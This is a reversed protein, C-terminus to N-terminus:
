QPLDKRTLCGVQRAKLLDSDEKSKSRFAKLQLVGPKSTNYFNVVKSLFCEAPPIQQDSQKRNLNEYEAPEYKELCKEDCVLREKEDLLQFDVGQGNFIHLDREEVQDTINILKTFGRTVNVLVQCEVAVQSLRNLQLFHESDVYFASAFGKASYATIPCYRETCKFGTMGLPCACIPRFEENVGHCIQGNKCPNQSHCPDNFECSKGVKGVPCGTAQMTAIVVLIILIRLMTKNLSFTRFKQIQLLFKKM